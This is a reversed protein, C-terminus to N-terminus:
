RGVVNLEAAEVAQAPSATSIGASGDTTAGAPAAEQHKCVPCYWTVGLKKSQKELRYPAACQPCPQPIPRQWVSFTCKPYNTCGYFTKGRRSRRQVVTGGCGEEPCAMVTTVIPKTAKCEPYGTCALFEGFRSRKLAMPKGCQECTVDINAAATNKQPTSSEASSLERTNKCEPYGSCAMFRGFRGWRIVMLRQCKECVEETEEIEKKVDRMKRTAQQLEAVFPEYFEHLTAVWDCKGEEIQDLKSELQATFQVNLLDPFSEVLLSSVTTGLETPTLRREQDEIYRRERLTGLISAYTSPRGIGLKELESVLSAETFRPPPQTFHQNPLVQNVQVEQGVLMAPLLRNHAEAESDSRNAETQSEEYLTTFGPFRMVAGTARFLYTKAAIDVTTHDLVASSMQSAVLRNWILTYLSQQEPSLYPKVQAPTRLVSTPRIAEHAEQAAKQSKYRRPQAPVYAKGYHEQIYQRVEQVAEDALRTSDTRMYTILGVEGEEGLALGEYLQQAVRMTRQASFRLKRAAEQQLTSTTFPPAPHRRRTTQKVEAVTYHAEQLDLVIRQAAEATTIQAKAGQIAHLRAHFPPPEAVAMDADITWYEQARFAQIEQERECLIRLAVSQVRGASLGRQVKQWLLPSIKYGVLRDLLRRAQQASVKHEDIRGPHQLAETVGKKTIEHLMIRYIHDSPTQQLESAIHWAIAEGERDPDPALYVSDVKEAEARLEDILKKKGKIPVYEPAFDHAVDIGLRREPLDKVHGISAKVTYGAGLYKKITKAKAPSEVIILSKAM